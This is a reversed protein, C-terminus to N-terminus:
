TESAAMEYLMAGPLSQVIGDRGVSAFQRDAINLVEFSKGESATQVFALTPVEALMAARLPEFREGGMAAEVVVAHPLGDHCFREAEELRGVFSIMMGVPRLAERIKSRVDRQASILLVHRGGM